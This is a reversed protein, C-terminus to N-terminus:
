EIEAVERALQQVDSKMLNVNSELQDFLNARIRLADARYTGGAGFLLNELQKKEDENKAGLEGATLWRKLLRQRLPPQGAGRIGPRSLFNWVAAPFVRSEAPGHWIDSLANRHHTFPIDAAASTRLSSYGLAAGVLGIAIGVPRYITKRVNFLSMLGTAVTGLAGLLIAMITLRKVRSGAEDLLYDAIQDAREEECDLEGATSSIELVVDTLQDGVRQRAVVRPLSGTPTALLDRLHPVLGCVNATRVADASFTRTLLSDAVVEAEPLVVYGRPAMVPTLPACESEDPVNEPALSRTATNCGSVLVVSGVVLGYLQSRRHLFFFPM